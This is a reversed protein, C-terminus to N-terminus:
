KGWIRYSQREFLFLHRKFSFSFVCYLCMKFNCLKFFILHKELFTTWSMMKSSPISVGHLQIVQELWLNEMSWNLGQIEQRQEGHSCKWLWFWLRLKGQPHSSGLVQAMWWGRGPSVAAPLQFWSHLLPRHAGRSNGFAVVFPWHKKVRWFRSKWSVKMQYFMGWSGAEWYETKEYLHYKLQVLAPM